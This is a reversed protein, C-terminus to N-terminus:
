KIRVKQVIYRVWIVEKTIDDHCQVTASSSIKFGLEAFDKDAEEQTQRLPSTKENYITVWCNGLGEVYQWQRIQKFVCYKCVEKKPQTAEEKFDLYLKGELFKDIYYADAERKKAFNKVIMQNDEKYSVIYNKM